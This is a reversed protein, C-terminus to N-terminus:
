LVPPNKAGALSWIERIAANYAAMDQEVSVLDGQAGSDTEYDTEVMSIDVSDLDTTAVKLNDEANMYNEGVSYPLSPALDYQLTELATDFAGLAALRQGNSRANKMAKTYAIGDKALKAANGAEEHVYARATTPVSGDALASPPITLLAAVAAAVVITRMM